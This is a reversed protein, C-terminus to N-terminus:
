SHQAPNGNQISRTISFVGTRPGPTKRPGAAAAPPANAEDQALVRSGDQQCFYTGPQTARASWKKQSMQSEGPVHDADPSRHSRAGAGLLEYPRTQTCRICSVGSPSKDGEALVSGGSLFANMIQWAAAFDDQAAHEPAPRLLRQIGESPPYLNWSRAQM